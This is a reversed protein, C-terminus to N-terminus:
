KEDKTFSLRWIMHPQDTGHFRECCSEGTDIFGLGRATAISAANNVAIHAYAQGVEMEDRIYRLVERLAETMIGRRWYAPQLDYGVELSDHERDLCHFGCTGIKEGNEKLVIIWRHRDHQGQELYFGIWQMADAISGCPEADYLYRYIDDNSFERLFFEADEEGICKLYLRETELDRFM